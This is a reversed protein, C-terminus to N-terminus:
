QSQVRYFMASSSGVAPITFSGPTANNTALRPWTALPAAVNNTGLLVFQSGAGGTYNLTTGSIPSITTPALVVVMPAFSVHNSAAALYMGSIELQTLARKWIGVDDIDASATVAYAGSSDQGINVPTTTSISGLFGIAQSDVQVGDLYTIVNASRTASHVLQHWNHDNLLGADSFTTFASPSTMTGISEFWGGANTDSQYPSFMWGTTAGVPENAIFPLNTFTSSAPQRVWYAVTFNTTAGFQLDAPVGLTVYNTSHAGTDTFYHVAKGVIGDSAFTPAGVSTGNNNRGSIDKYDGDFPLHLVLGNTLNLQSADTPIALVAVYNTPSNTSVSGNSVKVYYSGADSLHLPSLTLSADTGLVTGSGVKYWQYSLNVGAADEDLTTALSVYNTAPDVVPMSPVPAPADAYRALYHNTIQATSLANFYIAMEDFKGKLQEGLPDGTNNNTYAVPNCGLYLPQGLGDPAPYPQGTGQEAGDVYFHMTSGDSVFALHYWVGAVLAPSVPQDVDLVAGATFRLKNAGNIGFRWGNGGTLGFTSFLAQVGTLNTFYAWGELTYTQGAPFAFDTDNTVSVYGRGASAGPVAVGPDTDTLSYGSQNLFVNHYQGLYGNGSGDYALSGSTEDLRWYAAPGDARITQTYANTGMVILTANASVAFGYANTVACSYTGANGAEAPNITLTSSSSGFVSGSDTLNVGNLKWQYTISGLDGAVGINFTFSSDPFVSGGVPQQIIVPKGLVNIFGSGNFIANQNPATSGVPGWVGSGMPAGDIVLANVSNTGTYSLNVTTGSYVALTATSATVTANDLTLVGANNTVNGAVSGSIELTGQSVTTGGTYTNAGTLKWTGTGDKVVATTNVSSNNVIKGISNLATSSGQLTLTKAGAGTATNVATLVLAGTGDAQIVAGGTTGALAIVRDSTEGPGTYLLTGTYTSSGIAITGNAASSPVGLNSSPNPSTVKNISSVSLTGAQISTKGTYTNAGTLRIVGANAQTQRAIGGTGSLVGSIVDAGSGSNGLTMTYSGLAWNGSYTVGSSNAVLNISASQSVTWANPINIAGTEEAVLACGSGNIVKIAGTGFSANNNFNLIGGWRSTSYGLETGGSYTNVGNFFFQGGGTGYNELTVTGPGGIVANITTNGDGDTGSSNYSGFGCEGSVLNMAGPGNITLICSYNNLYGNFLGGVSQDVGMTITYTAPTILTNPGVEAASGAVWAVPTATTTGNGSSWAADEWNGSMTSSYAGTGQPDWTYVGARAQRSLLCATLCLALPLLSQM